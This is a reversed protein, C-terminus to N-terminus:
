RTRTGVDIAEVPIGFAVDLYKGVYNAYLTGDKAHYINDYLRHVHFLDLRTRWDAALKLDNQIELEEQSINARGVESSDNERSCGLMVFTIVAILCVNSLIRNM